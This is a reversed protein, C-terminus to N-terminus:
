WITATAMASLEAAQAQTWADNDQEYLGKASPKLQTAV